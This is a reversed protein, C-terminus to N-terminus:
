KIQQPFGMNTIHTPGVSPQGSPPGIISPPQGLPPMTRHDRQPKTVCSFSSVVLQQHGSVEPFMCTDNQQQKIMQNQKGMVPRSQCYGAQIMSDSLSFNNVILDGYYGSGDALPRTRVLQAMKNDTLSKLFLIGQFYIHVIFM